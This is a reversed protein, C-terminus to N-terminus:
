SCPINRPRISTPRSTSSATSTADSGDAAKFKFLETKKLGLQDFKTTDSKALEAM